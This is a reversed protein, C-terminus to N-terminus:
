LAFLEMGEGFLGLSPMTVVKRQGIERLFLLYSNVVRTYSLSKAETFGETFARMQMDDLLLKMQVCQEVLLKQQASPYGGLHEHLLKELQRGSLKGRIAAPFESYVNRRPKTDKRGIPRGAGPRAGGNKM